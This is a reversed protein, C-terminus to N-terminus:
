DMGRCQKDFSTELVQCCLSPIAAHILPRIAKESFVLLFVNGYMAAFKEPSCGGFVTLRCLDVVYKKDVLPGCIDFARGCKM